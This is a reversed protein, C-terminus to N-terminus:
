GQVIVLDDSLLRRYMSAIIDSTDFILCSEEKFVISQLTELLMISVVFLKTYQSWNWIANKTLDRISDVASITNGMCLM